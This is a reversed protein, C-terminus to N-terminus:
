NKGSWKQKRDRKGENPMSARLKHVRRERGFISIPGFRMFSSAGKGPMSLGKHDTFSIDDISNGCIKETIINFLCNGKVVMLGPGLPESTFIDEISLMDYTVSYDIAVQNSKETLFAKFLFDSPSGTLDNGVSENIYKNVKLEDYLESRIKSANLKPMSDKIDELFSQIDPYVSIKNNYRSVEESLVEALGEESRRNQYFGFDKTIFIVEADKALEVAVEWVASDKFQQDGNNKQGSPKNPPIGDLLRSLAGKAHIFTFPVKIIINELEKMKEIFAKEMEDESPLQYDDIVGLMRQLISYQKDIESCADKAIKLLNIAIERELIEPLVLKGGTSNLYFLLAASMSDDLLKTSYIWINTDLIIYQNVKM